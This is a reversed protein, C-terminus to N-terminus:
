STREEEADTTSESAMATDMANAQAVREALEPAM